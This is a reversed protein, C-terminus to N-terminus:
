VLKTPRSDKLQNWADVLTDSTTILTKLNSTKFFDNVQKDSMGLDRKAAAYFDSWRKETIGQETPTTEPAPADVGTELWELLRGGIKPSPTFYENDFLNTRDKSARAVHEPSVDIFVTFEYEMGDRQIPAMGVKKPEQKGKDNVQLVYETKTRLTAIIHCTSQLITEVMKNHLPTIERWATFSNGGMKQRKDLQELLGGEGAWYHTLSDLILVEIDSREAEHIADICKQPAYPPTLPLVNYEGIKVGGIISGVYLEGSGNETDVLGIKAWDGTIGYAILLASATKGSGASGAIGLRLKAKRREAKRFAM